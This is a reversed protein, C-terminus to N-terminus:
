HCLQLLRDGRCRCYWRTLRPLRQPNVWASLAEPAVNLMFKLQATVYKVGSRNPPKFPRDFEGSVLTARWLLRTMVMLALRHNLETLWTLAQEPSAAWEVLAKGWTMRTNNHLEGLERLSQQCSNWFPDDTEGDWLQQWQPGAPKDQGYRTLSHHGM